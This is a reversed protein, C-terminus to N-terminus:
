RYGNQVWCDISRHLKKSRTFYSSNPLPRKVRQRQLKTHHHPTQGDVEDHQDLFIKESKCQCEHPKKVHCAIHVLKLNGNAKLAGTSPNKHLFLLDYFYQLNVCSARQSSLAAKLEPIISRSKEIVHDFNWTSFVIRAERSAYPNIYHIGPCQHQDYPGECEFIGQSDCLREQESVTSRDFYSANYKSNRLKEKFFLIANNQPSDHPLNEALLERKTHDLYGRMRAEASNRMVAEKTKFRTDLGKFWESDDDKSTRAISDDTTKAIVQLLTAAQKSSVPEQLCSMVKHHLQPQRDLCAHLFSALQHIYDATDFDKAKSIFLKTGDKYQIKKQM